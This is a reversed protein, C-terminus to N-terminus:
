KIVYYFSIIKQEQNNKTCAKHTKQNPSKEVFVVFSSFTASAVLSCSLLRENTMLIDSAITKKTPAGVIVRFCFMSLSFLIVSNCLFCYCDLDFLRLADIM